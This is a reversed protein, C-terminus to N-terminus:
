AARHTVFKARVLPREGIKRVRRASQKALDLWAEASRLMRAKDIASTARDALEAFKVANRRFEDERTM